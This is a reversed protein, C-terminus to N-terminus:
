TTQKQTENKIIIPCSPIVKKIETIVEIKETPSLGVVNQLRNFIQLAQSCSIITVSLLIM